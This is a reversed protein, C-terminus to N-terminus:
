GFLLPLSTGGKATIKPTIKKGGWGGIALRFLLSILNKSKLLEEGKREVLGPAITKM